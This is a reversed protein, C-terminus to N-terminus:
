LYLGVNDETLLETNVQGHSWRGKSCKLGYEMLWHRIMVPNVANAKQQRKEGYDRRLM